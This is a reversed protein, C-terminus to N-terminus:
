KNKLVLPGKFNNKKDTIYDTKGGKITSALLRANYRAPRFRYKKFSEFLYSLAPREWTFKFVCGGVIDNSFRSLIGTKKWTSWDIGTKYKGSEWHVKRTKKAVFITGLYPIKIRRGNLVIAENLWAIYTDIIDNYIDQSVICQSKLDRENNIYAYYSDLLSYRYSVYKQKWRM